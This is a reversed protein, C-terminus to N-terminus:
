SVPLADPPLLVGLQNHGLRLMKDADSELVLFYFVGGSPTGCSSRPIPEMTELPMKVRAELITIGQEKFYANIKSLESNTSTTNFFGEDWPTVQCYKELYEFWVMKGQTGWGREVLKQATYQKVCAPFNDSIKILLVFGKNCQIDRVSIGHELQKLPSITLISNQALTFPVLSSSLVLILVSFLTKSTFPRV